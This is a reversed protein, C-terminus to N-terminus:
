RARNYFSQSFILWQKTIYFPYRLKRGIDLKIGSVTCSLSIAVIFWISIPVYACAKSLATFEFHGQILSRTVAFNEVVCIMARGKQSLQAEQQVSL